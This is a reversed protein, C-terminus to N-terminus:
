DRGGAPLRPGLALVGLTAFRITAAEGRNEMCLPKSALSRPTLSPAHPMEVSKKTYRPVPLHQVKTIQGRNGTITM